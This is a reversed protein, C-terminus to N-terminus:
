NMLQRVAQAVNDQRMLSEGVLVADVNMTALYAIDDATFIGSESVFLIDGPVEKRIQSSHELDIEFTRLDRNNVGVLKPNCALVAELNEYEYFEVLATMGLENIKDHLRKLDDASLCEAILLVADAGFARAEYVQCEDLVFDKRLLPLDCQARIAKLFDLHGQFFNEDTLVSVCNAGGKEYAKAIEVPHFDDRIVGNSPSAKKVEAILGMADGSLAEAFDRVPPADAIASKWETHSISSAAIELRKHKVIKDLITPM